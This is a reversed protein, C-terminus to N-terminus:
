KLSGLTWDSGDRGVTGNLWSASVGERSLEEAEIVSLWADGNREDVQIKKRGVFDVFFVFHCYWWQADLTLLVCEM